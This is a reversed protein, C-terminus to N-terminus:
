VDLIDKLGAKDINDIKGKLKMKAVQDLQTLKWNKFKEKIQEVQIEKNDITQKIQIETQAVKKEALIVRSLVAEYEKLKRNSLETNDSLEEIREAILHDLRTTETEFYTKKESLMVELNRIESDAQSKLQGLKEYTQNYADQVADKSIQSTRMDKKANETDSKLQSLDKTAADYEAKVNKLDVKIKNAAEKKEDLVAVSKILKSEKKSLDKISNSLSEEINLEKKFTDTLSSIDSKAVLLQSDIANCESIRSDIISTISKLKKNAKKSESQISKLNVKAESISDQIRNNEAKLKDNAKKIAKKIDDKSVPIRPKRAKRNGFMEAM